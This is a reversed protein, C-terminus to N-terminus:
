CAPRRPEEAVLELRDRRREVGRPEEVLCVCARRAAATARGHVGLRGDESALVPHAVCEEEEALEELWPVAIALRAGLLRQSDRAVTAVDVPVVALTM